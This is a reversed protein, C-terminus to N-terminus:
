LLHIELVNRCSDTFKFRDDIRRGLIWVIEGASELIWTNEKEVVSMKSDVFFDSLKKFGRMGLPRFFDGTRWHRLVLPFQLKDANLHVLSPDKSLRFDDSVEVRRLRLHLPFFLEDTGDPIEISTAADSQSSLPTVILNFRDVVARASPSYFVRGWKSLAVCIAIGRVSASSFGRRQLIEFLYPEMNPLAVLHEVPILLQGDFETVCRQEFDAVMSLFLRYVDDLHHMNHQMTRLFAPNLAKLEPVVHHRIRNRSYEDHLNTSDTVFSLRHAKCYLEVSERSMDLLPRVVHGNVPKMGSLGRPGTGRVLNLFFTEVDDDAHHGVALTPINDERMISEFWEYRLQRAAMEISLHNQEAFARTDFHAVRLPVSLSDCFSRVFQEDRDSEAGRLHFNCHAAVCHFGASVLKHLLAVSDAGGSIAVLVARSRDILSDLKM